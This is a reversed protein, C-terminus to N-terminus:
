IKTALLEQVCPIGKYEDKFFPDNPFIKNELSISGEPGTQIQNFGNTSIFEKMENSTIIYHDGKMYSLEDRQYRITQLFAKSAVLKPDYDSAKNHETEWLFLYWGIDNFNM